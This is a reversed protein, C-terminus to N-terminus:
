EKEYKLMEKRLDVKLKAIKDLHRRLKRATSKTYKKRIKECEFVAEKLENEVEELLKDLEPTYM